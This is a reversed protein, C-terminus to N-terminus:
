ICQVKRANSIFTDIYPKSTILEFSAVDAFMFMYLDM